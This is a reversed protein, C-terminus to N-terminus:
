TGDLLKAFEDAVIQLMQDLAVPDFVRSNDSPGAIGIAVLDARCGRHSLVTTLRDLSGTPDLIEDTVPPGDCGYVEAWEAFDDPTADLGGTLELDIPHPMDWRGDWHPGIAPGFEFRDISIVPVADAPECGDITTMGLLLVIATLEVDIAGACHAQVAAVTSQGFGNLFVPSSDLCVVSELRDFFAALYSPNFERTRTWWPTEGQEAQPAFIVLNEAAPGFQPWVQEWADLAHQWPFGGAHLSVVVIPDTLAAASAVDVGIPLQQGDFEFAYEARGVELANAAM